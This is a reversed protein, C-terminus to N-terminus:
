FYALELDKWACDGLGLSKHLKRRTEENKEKAM